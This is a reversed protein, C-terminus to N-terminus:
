GKLTLLVTATLCLFFALVLVGLVFRAQPTM